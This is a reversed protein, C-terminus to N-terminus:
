FFLIEQNESSHIAAKKAPKQHIMNQVGRQHLTFGNSRWMRPPDRESVEMNASCQVGKTETNASLDRRERLNTM